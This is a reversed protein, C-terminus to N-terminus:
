PYADLWQRAAPSILALSKPPLMSLLLRKASIEKDKDPQWLSYIQFLTFAAPADPPLLQVAKQAEVIANALSYYPKHPLVYAGALQEHTFPITPGLEVSRKILLYGRDQNMRLSMLAMGQVLYTMWLKPNCKYALVFTSAYDAEEPQTLLHSVKHQNLPLNGTEGDMAFCYASLIIANDPQSKRLSQLTSFALDAKNDIIARRVTRFMGLANDSNNTLSQQLQPASIPLYGDDYMKSATTDCTGPLSLSLILSICIFLISIKKQSM